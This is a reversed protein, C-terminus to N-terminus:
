RECSNGDGGTPLNQVKTGSPSASEESAFTCGSGQYYGM